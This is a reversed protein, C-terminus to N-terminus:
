WGIADSAFLGWQDTNIARHMFRTAPVPGTRKAFVYTSSGKPKFRLMGNPRAQSGSTGYEQFKGHPADVYIFAAWYLPFLENPGIYHISDRLEGTEVPAYNRARRIVNRAGYYAQARTIGGVHTHIVDMFLRVKASM